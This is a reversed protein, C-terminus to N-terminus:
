KKGKIPLTRFTDAGLISRDMKSHGSARSVSKGSELRKYINLVFENAVDMNVGRKIILNHFDEKTNYHVPATKFTELFLLLFLRNYPVM